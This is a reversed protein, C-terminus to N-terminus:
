KPMAREELYLLMLAKDLEKLGGIFKHLLHLNEETDTAGDPMDAIDPEVGTFPIVSASRKEKRYFSIAVNLAVRYM